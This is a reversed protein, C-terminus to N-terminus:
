SKVKPKKLLLLMEKYKFDRGGQCYVSLGGVYPLTAVYIESFGRALEKARKITFSHPHAKDRIKKEKFVEITLIIYGGRKLVRKMERMSKSPDTVHDLVNTCFVIDFTEDDYPINESYGKVVEIDKPYNYIKSYKEALPDMGIKIGPIFHLTTSIGCGVDLVRSNKNIRALKKLHPFKRYKIWYSLVSSKVKPKTFEKAWMTQFYLEALEKDMFLNGVTKKLICRLPEPIKSAIKIMYERMFIDGISLKM